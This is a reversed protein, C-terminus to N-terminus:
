SFLASGFSHVHQIGSAWVLTSEGFFLSTPGSYAQWLMGYLSQARERAAALFVDRRLSNFANAMDVKFIVRRHSAGGLYSRAAHAAAECGGKTSYGLQVPRLSEGIQVALPRAGVKTALRRLTCGVAIPRISGDKKALACLTAGYFIQRAFEPVEGRLILNVFEALSALLREGAEATKRSTLAKLHSPRLGDPGGASGPGFSALAKRIDEVSAVAPAFDDEPPEPLSLDVPASPHKQQLLGLTQGNQPAVDDSSALLRVAGKIDGDAFKSAVSKGLRVENTLEKTQAGGVPAILSDEDMFAALQRKVRTTLSVGHGDSETNPMPQRIGMFGFSLLKGWALRSKVQIAGDLLKQLADAACFAAGKPIIKLARHSTRCKSIYEVLDVERDSEPLIPEGVRGLCGPCTWRPIGDAQRASLGVCSRHYVHECRHCTILKKRNNVILCARCLGPEESM